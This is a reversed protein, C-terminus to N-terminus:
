KSGATQARKARDFLIQAGREDGDSSLVM